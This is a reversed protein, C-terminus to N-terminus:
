KNKTLARSLRHHPNPRIQVMPSIPHLDDLHHLDRQLEAEGLRVRDLLDEVATFSTFGRCSDSSLPTSKNILVRFKIAVQM